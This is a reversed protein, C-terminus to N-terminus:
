ADTVNEQSQTEDNRQSTQHKSSEIGHLAIAVEYQNMNNGARYRTSSLTVNEEHQNMNGAINRTSTANEEHQNTNRAINRTSTSNEEHQNVNGAGNHTSSLTDNEENQPTQQRSSETGFDEENQSARHTSVESDRNNMENQDEENLAVRKAIWAFGSLLVSPLLSILFLPGTNIVSGRGILLSYSAFVVLFHLYLIILWMSMFPLVFYFLIKLIRKLKEPCNRKLGEKWSSLKECIRSITEKLRECTRSCCNSQQNSQQENQLESQQNSKNSDFQNYLKVISASFISTAFLYSIVFTFIVIIQTPYAFMLIITPFFLYFLMFATACFNSFTRLESQTHCHGEKGCIYCSVFFIQFVAMLLLYIQPTWVALVIGSSNDINQTWVICTALRAFFEIVLATTSTIRIGTTLDKDTNILNDIKKKVNEFYYYLITLLFISVAYLFCLITSYLNVLIVDSGIPIIKSTVSTNPLTFGIFEVNEEVNLM